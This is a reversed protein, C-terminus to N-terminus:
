GTSASLDRLLGTVETVGNGKSKATLVFSIAM